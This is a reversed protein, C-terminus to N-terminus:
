PQLRVAHREVDARLLAVLMGPVTRERAGRRDEALTALTAYVQRHDVEAAAERGFVQLVHRRHFSVARRDEARQALVEAIRNGFRDDLRSAAHDAIGPDDLGLHYEDCLLAV